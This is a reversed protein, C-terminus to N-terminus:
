CCPRFCNVAVAAARQLHITCGDALSHQRQRARGNQLQVTRRNLTSGNGILEVPVIGSRKPNKAVVKRFMLLEAPPMRFM